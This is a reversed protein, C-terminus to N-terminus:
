ATCLHRPPHYLAYTLSTHSVPFHAISACAPVHSHYLCLHSIHSICSFSCHQCLCACTLSVPMPSLHTLYLFILLAPVPLCMHTICAYTLSTHSVPFHAISACAPVHSHYLCLHSIHSTCSFSCHQCLCACTLSVPMPSLHTLYLFILLAPVPLCM